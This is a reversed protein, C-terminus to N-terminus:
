RQIKMIEAQQEALVADKDLLQKNLSKIYDAQYKMTM